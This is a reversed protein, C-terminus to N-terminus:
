KKRRILALLGLGGLLFIGPEPIEFSGPALAMDDYYVPKDAESQDSYLDIAEVASQVNAGGM